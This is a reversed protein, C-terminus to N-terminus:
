DWGISELHIDDIGFYHAIEHLVTKAVEQRLADPPLDLELHPLRFVHIVDPLEWAYDVGREPLPTGTYLGLLGEGDPDMEADPQEQVQFVVNDLATLLHDPLSQVVEEVLAEFDKSDVATGRQVLSASSLMRRSSAM